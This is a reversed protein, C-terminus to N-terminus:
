GVRAFLHYAAAVDEVLMGCRYYVDNIGGVDLAVEVERQLQHLQAHRHHNCQVNHVLEFGITTRHADVAHLRQKSNGYHWYRCHLVFTNVLKYFVGEVDGAILFTWLSLVETMGIVVSNVATQMGDHVKDFVVALVYVHRQAKSGAFQCFAILHHSVCQFQRLVFALRHFMDNHLHLLFSTEVTLCGNGVHTELEDLGNGTLGNDLREFAAFM